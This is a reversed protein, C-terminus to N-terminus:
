IGGVFRGPNLTSKPDFQAKIRRMLDLGEGPDGWVDIQNQLTHRMNWVVLNGQGAEAEARVASLFSLALDDPPQHLRLLAHGHGLHARASMQMGIDEAHRQASELLHPLDSPTTILRALADGPTTKATGDFEAWLAREVDGELKDTADLISLARAAQGEVAYPSSEFRIALVGTRGEAYYDVITPVLGFMLLRAAHTAAEGPTIDKSVVTASAPPIPYLRFTAEVVVGLTGLSGTLLKPLDYGAVNKVVKGGARAVTGDARVFTVGLLMDRVGGYRLRRPGSDGTAILGGVTGPIPPDIALFQDAKALETQLEGLLTGASVTVTMDGAAHEIVGSIRGMDLIIDCATPPAGRDQKTGSGQPVVKLGRENAWALLRSVEEVTQPQVQIADYISPALGFLDAVPGLSAIGTDRVLENLDLSVTSM